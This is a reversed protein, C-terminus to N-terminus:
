GAPPPSTHITPDGQRLWIQPNDIPVFARDGGPERSTPVTDGNPLHMIFNVPATDDALPIDYEAWGDEIRTPPWPRDWAVQALAAPDIGDGWLHLGWGPYDGAPRHYHVTAVALPPGAYRVTRVASTARTGDPETLVARYRVRTGAALALPALDDFVTYAPSSSDRGITTWAGDAVSREFRVVHGAREPDAVARVEVTGRVNSNEAPAEVTLTPAPVRTGRSRSTATHGANDLVVARYRVGTGAPLGAVDHFVRYPATDDTGIPTWGGAGTRAYFTVEYFSSGAVDASVEIRGGSGTAPAPAALSM